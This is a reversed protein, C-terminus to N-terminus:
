LFHLMTHTALVFSFACLFEPSEVFDDVKMYSPSTRRSWQSCHSSPHSCARAAWSTATSPWTGPPTLSMRCTELCSRTSAPCNRGRAGCGLWQHWTWAAIHLFFSTCPPHSHPLLSASIFLNHHSSPLPFSLPLISSASSPFSPLSSLLFSFLKLTYTWYMCGLWFGM